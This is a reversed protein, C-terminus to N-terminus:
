AWQAAITGAKLGRGPMLLGAAAARTDRHRRNISMQQLTLEEVAELV